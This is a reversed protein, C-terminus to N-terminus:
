QLSLHACRHLPRNLHTDASRIPLKHGLAEVEGGHSLRRREILQRRIDALGDPTVQLALVHTNEGSM